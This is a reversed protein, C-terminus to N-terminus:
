LSHTEIFFYEKGAVEAPYRIVFITESLNLIENESELYFGDTTTYKEVIVTNNKTLNWTGTTYATGNIYRYVLTGNDYWTFTDNARRHYDALFSQVSANQRDMEPETRWTQVKWSKNVLLQRPGAAQVAPSVLTATNETTPPVMTTTVVSKTTVPSTPTAVKQGTCGASLVLASVILVLCFIGQFKM